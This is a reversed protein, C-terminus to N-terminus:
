ANDILKKIKDECYGDLFLVEGKHLVYASVANGYNMVYVRRWGKFTMFGMDLKVMYSTPFKRGYPRWRLRPGDAIRAAIIENSALYKVPELKVM